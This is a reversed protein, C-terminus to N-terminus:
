IAMGLSCDTDARIPPYMSNPSPMLTRVGRGDRRMKSGSRLLECDSCVMFGAEGDRSPTHETVEQHLSIPGGIMVHICALYERTDEGHIECKLRPM